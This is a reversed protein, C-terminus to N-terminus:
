GMIYEMFFFINKNGFLWLDLTLQVNWSWLLAITKSWYIYIYIYKNNTDNNNGNNNYIYIVMLLIYQNTTKCYGDQFIHLNIPLIIGYIISFLIWTQFWWDAHYKISIGDPLKVYSDFIAM